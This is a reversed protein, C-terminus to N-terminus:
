VALLVIHANEELNCNYSLFPCSELFYKQWNCICTSCLLLSFTSFLKWLYSVFYARMIKLKKLDRILIWFLWYIYLFLNFLSWNKKLDQLDLFCSFITSQKKSCLNLISFTEVKWTENNRLLSFHIHQFCAKFFNTMFFYTHLQVYTPLNRQHKYFIVRQKFLIFLYFLLSYFQQM